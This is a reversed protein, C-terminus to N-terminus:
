HQAKVLNLPQPKGEASAEKTDRNKAVSWDLGLDQQKKKIM